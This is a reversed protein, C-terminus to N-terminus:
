QCHFPRHLQHVSRQLREPRVMNQEASFKQSSIKMSERIVPLIWTFFHRSGQIWLLASTFSTRFVLTLTDTKYTKESPMNSKGPLPLTTMM